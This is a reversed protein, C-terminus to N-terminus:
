GMIIDDNKGNNNLFCYMCVQLYDEERTRLMVMCDILVVSFSSFFFSIVKKILTTASSKLISSTNTSSLNRPYKEDKKLPREETEVLLCYVSLSSIEVIIKNGVFKVCLKGWNMQNITICKFIRTKMSRLLFIVTSLVLNFLMAISTTLYM